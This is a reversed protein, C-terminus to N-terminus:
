FEIASPSPNSGENGMNHAFRNELGGCEAARGGKRKKGFRMVADAFNEFSFARELAEEVLVRESDGNM